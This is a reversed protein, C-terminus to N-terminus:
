EHITRSRSQSSLLGAVTRKEEDTWLWDLVNFPKGKSTIDLEESSNTNEEAHETNEVM